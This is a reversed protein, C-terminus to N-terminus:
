RRCASSPRSSWGHWWWRWSCAGSHPLCSRGCVCLTSRARVHHRASTRLSFSLEWNRIKGAVLVAISSHAVFQAVGVAGGDGPLEVVVWEVLREELIDHAQALAFADVEPPQVPLLPERTGVGLSQALSEPEVMDVEGIHLHVALLYAGDDVMTPAPQAAMAIRDAERAVCVGAPAGQGVLNGEGARGAVHAVGIPPVVELSFAMAPAISSPLVSVAWFVTSQVVAASALACYWKLPLLWLSNCFVTTAKSGATHPQEICSPSYGTSLSKPSVKGLAM